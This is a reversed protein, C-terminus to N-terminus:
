PEHAAAEPALTSGIQVGAAFYTGTDSAPLIDYTAEHAYPIIEVSQIAQGGLSGGSRLDAFRRGDATPHPASVELVRGNTLRVRVVHHQKVDVRRVSRVVVPVVALHDVSYVLDGVRIDAIPREGDPTAIPTDPSNCPGGFGGDRRGGGSSGGFGGSSGGRGGGSGSGSSGGRGGSSSSSSGTTTNPPCTGTWALCGGNFCCWETMGSPVQGVCDSASNCSAGSSGGAGSGGNGGGGGSSTGGDNEWVSGGCAGVAIGASGLAFILGILARRAKLTMTLGLKASGATM